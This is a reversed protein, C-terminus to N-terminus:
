SPRRQPHPVPVQPSMDAVQTESPVQAPEVAPKLGELTAKKALQPLGLSQAEQVAASVGDSEKGSGSQQSQLASNMAPPEEYASPAASQVTDRGSASTMDTDNVTSSPELGAAKPLSQRKRKIPQYVEGRALAAAERLEREQKSPRGRKKAGIPLLPPAIATSDIVTGSLAGPPLPPDSSQAQGNVSTFRYQQPSDMSATARDALGALAGAAKAQAKASTIAYSSPPSKVTVGVAREMNGLAARCSALSRGNPLAMREWEPYVGVEAIM